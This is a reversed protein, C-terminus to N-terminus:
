PRSSPSRHAPTARPAPLPAPTRPSLVLRWLGSGCAPVQPRHPRRPRDGHRRGARRRRAERVFRRDRQHLHGQHRSLLQRRVQDDRFIRALHLGDADRDPVPAPLAPAHGRAGTRQRRRDGGPGPAHLRRDGLGRASVRSEVGRRLRRRARAERIIGAVERGSGVPVTSKTVVVTYGDLAAAIERAVGHVYTLDAHGDGRRSPTGVAIFVADATAVAPVLETTFSLRGAHVNAEVLRELGPEYIPMEGAKLRAVRDADKEVCAVHWGFEFFVRGFRARCLRRRDNRNAHCYGQRDTITLARGRRTPLPAPAPAEAYARLLRRLDASLEDRELAYAINAELFGLKDGCDFRRGEFRLGHFPQRGILHAM